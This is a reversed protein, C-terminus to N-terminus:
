VQNKTGDPTKDLYAKVGMTIPASYLFGNLVKENTFLDTPLFHMNVDIVKQKEAM